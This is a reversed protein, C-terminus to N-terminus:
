LASTLSTNFCIPLITKCTGTSDLGTCQFSKNFTLLSCSFSASTLYPHGSICTWQPLYFPLFNLSNKENKKTCFYLKTLPNRFHNLSRLHLSRDVHIYPIDLLSFYSSCKLTGLNIHNGCFCPLVTLVIYMNWIICNLWNSFFFFNLWFAFVNSHISIIWPKVHTVLKHESTIHYDQSYDLAILCTCTSHSRVPVGFLSIPLYTVALM